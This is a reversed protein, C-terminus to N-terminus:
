KRGKHKATLKRKVAAIAVDLPFEEESDQPKLWAELQAKGPVPGPLGMEADKVPREKRIVVAKKSARLKTIFDVLQAGKATQDDIEVVYKM